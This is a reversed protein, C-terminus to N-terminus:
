KEKLLEPNAFITPHVEKALKSSLSAMRELSSPLHALMVQPHNHTQM